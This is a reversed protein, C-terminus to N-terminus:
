DMSSGDLLGHERAWLAAELRTAVGLKAKANSVHVSATKPSIFMAEGIEIDTKGQGVLQLIEIERKTLEGHRIRAVPADDPSGRLNGPLTSLLESPDASKGERIALDIAVRSSAKTARALWREGLRRDSDAFAFDDRERMAEVAGWLRAAELPRGFALAVPMTTLLSEFIGEHFGIDIAISAGELADSLAGDSDGLEARAAARYCLMWGVDNPRELERFTGIAVGALRAAERFDGRAMLSQALNGAAYAHKAPWDEPTALQLIARQLEIAEDSETGHMAVAAIAKSEALNIQMRPTLRLSDIAGLEQDVEAGATADASNFALIAKNELALALAFEDDLSRAMDIARQITERHKAMGSMESVLNPYMALARAYEVSPQESRTSLEEFATAGESVRGRTTWFDILRTWLAFARRTDSVGLRDLARRMNDAEVDYQTVLNLAARQQSQEFWGSALELCYDAHRDQLEALVLSPIDRLVTARIM